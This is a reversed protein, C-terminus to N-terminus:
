MLVTTYNTMSYACRELEHSVAVSGCSILLQNVSQKTLGRVFPFISSQTILFPFKM